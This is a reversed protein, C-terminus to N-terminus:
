LLHLTIVPWQRRMVVDITMLVYRTFIVPSTNILIFPRSRNLFPTGMMIDKTKSRSSMHIKLTQILLNLSSQPLDSGALTEFKRLKKHHLGRFLFQLVRSTMFVGM